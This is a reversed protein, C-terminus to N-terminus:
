SKPVPLQYVSLMGDHFVALLAGDPSIGLRNRHELFPPWMGKVKRAYIAKGEPLSYVAVEDNAPFEYMDLFENTVGRMRMEVVAFRRGGPAISIQGVSQKSGLKVHFVQIGDVTDGELEGRTTLVLTSDTLFCRARAQRDTTHLAIPTWSSADFKRTCLQGRHAIELWIPIESIFTSHRM